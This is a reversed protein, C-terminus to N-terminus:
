SFRLLRRSSFMVRADRYMAAMRNLVEADIAPKPPLAM